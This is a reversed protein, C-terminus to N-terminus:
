QFEDVAVTPYKCLHTVNAPIRVEKFHWKVPHMVIMAWITHSNLAGIIAMAGRFGYTTMLFEVMFPYIMIGVGILSQAVNMMLVRRNVFYQNFTTFFVPVMFGFGAGSAISM